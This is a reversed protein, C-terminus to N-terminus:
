LRHSRQEKTRRYDANHFGALHHSNFRAAGFSRAMEAGCGPCDPLEDRQEAPRRLELTESCARCLYLYLTV